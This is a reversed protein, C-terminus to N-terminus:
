AVPRDDDGKGRAEYAILFFINCAAHWLHSYGSDVDAKEGQWWKWLHRMAASFPRSWSMGQEWNRAAYKRSGFELITAVAEAGEPPLLDYRAKGTDYKVGGKTLDDGERLAEVAQFEVTKM